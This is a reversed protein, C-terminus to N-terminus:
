DMYYIEAAALGIQVLIFIYRRYFMLTGLTLCIILFAIHINKTLFNKFIILGFLIYLVAYINIIMYIVKHM